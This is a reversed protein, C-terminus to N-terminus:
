EGNEEAYEGKSAFTFSGDENKNFGETNGDGILRMAEALALKVDSPYRGRVQINFCKM